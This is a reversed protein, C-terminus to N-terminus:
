ESADYSFVVESDSDVNLNLKSINIDESAKNVIELVTMNSTDIYIFPLVTYDHESFVIEDKENFTKMNVNHDIVDLAYVGTIEDCSVNHQKKLLYSILLLNVKNGVIYYNETESSLKLQYKADNFKVTVSMFSFKCLKYDFNLPFKPLGFFLVKNVKPATETVREYDSFIIFDYLLLQHVSIYQKNTSIMVQNFKIVDIESNKNFKDIFLKVPKFSPHFYLKKATMEVQTYFLIAYFSLNLLAARYENPFCCTMFVHFGAGLTFINLITM